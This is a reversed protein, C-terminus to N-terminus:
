FFNAQAWLKLIQDVELKASEYNFRNEDFMYYVAGFGHNNDFFGGNAVSIGNKELYEYVSNLRQKTYMDDNLDSFTADTVIGHLKIYHLVEEKTEILEDKKFYAM